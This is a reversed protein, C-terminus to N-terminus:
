IVRRAIQERVRVKIEVLPIKFGTSYRSSIDLKRSYTVIDEDFRIKDKEFIVVDTSSGPRYLSKPQGKKVFNGEKLPYFNSYKDESYCQKIDGIMMAAIEIFAVMGVNTGGVVDTDIITVVRRNLSLPTAISITASPNCSHYAGEIEYIDVVVGSVPAHNYHYEDPTLRFIAFDGDKFLEVWREKLLLDDLIFFKDKIFLGSEDRFSGPIMKADAPSVISDESEPMPRCEWYKIRREFIDQLTSYKTYDDYLENMDIGMIKFYKIISEQSLKKTYNFFKLLRTSNKSIALNFVFNSRERVRSYLFNIFRDAILKEELIKKNKREFYCHRGM